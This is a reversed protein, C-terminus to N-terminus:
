HTPPREAQWGGNCRLRRFRHDCTVLTGDPLSYTFSYGFSIGVGGALQAHDEPEPGQAEAGQPQRVPIRVGDRSLATVPRAVADSLAMTSGANDAIFWGVAAIILAVPVWRRM